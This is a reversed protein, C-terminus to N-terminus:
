WFSGSLAETASSTQRLAQLRAQHAILMCSRGEDKRSPQEAKNASIDFRQHKWMPDSKCRLIALRCGSGHSGGWVWFSYVAGSVTKDKWTESLSETENYREGEASPLCLPICAKHIVAGSLNGVNQLSFSPASRLAHILTSSHSYVVSAPCWRESMVTQGWQPKARM